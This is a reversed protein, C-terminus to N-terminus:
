DHMKSIDDVLYMFVPMCDVLCVHESSDLLLFARAQEKNIQVYM